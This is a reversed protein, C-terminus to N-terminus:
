LFFGKELRVNFLLNIREFLQLCLGAFGEIQEVSDSLKVHVARVVFSGEVVELLTM